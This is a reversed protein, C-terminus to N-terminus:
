APVAEPEASVTPTSPEPASYFVATGQKRRETRGKAVLNEMTTRVVTPKIGRDPHTKALAETVESISRPERQQVLHGHILEVLTPGTSRQAPVKPTGAAAPATQKARSPAAKVPKKRSAAPTATKKRSSANKPGATTAGPAGLVQQMNTLKQQDDELVRLRDQLADAEARIREQEQLKSELDAALRAAYAEQIGATETKADPM